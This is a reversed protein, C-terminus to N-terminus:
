LNSLLGEIVSDSDPISSPAPPLALNPPKSAEPLLPTPAGQGWIIVGSEL